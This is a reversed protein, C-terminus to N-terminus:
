LLYIEVSLLSCLFMSYGFFDFLFFYIFIYFRNNLLNKIAVRPGDSFVIGNGGEGIINEKSLGNTVAELERLTYWM